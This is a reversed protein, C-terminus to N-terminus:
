KSVLSTGIGGFKWWVKSNVDRCKESEQKTYHPMKKKKTKSLNEVNPL